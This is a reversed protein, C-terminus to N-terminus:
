PTSGEPALVKAPTPHASRFPYALQGLFSEPVSDDHVGFETPIRGKPLYFTGFILDWLPLLGAFNKDLGEDEKTHHWRHFLPSAIVYRLPGLTWSVNAHLVISYITLFPIYAAVVSPSFGVLAFPIVQCVRSVVENVPHLRTSSLWDLEKSSHHVAHFKWLRRSHFWRHSWYGIFDGLTIIIVAQLWTPLALLPGYGHQAAAADLKRGLLFFIPVLALLTAAQSLGKSVIPTFFWYLVDVGFGRRLRRQAPISPWYFEVVWFVLTLLLFAFALGFLHKTM